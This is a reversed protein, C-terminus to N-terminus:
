DDERARGFERKAIHILNNVLMWLICLGSLIYIAPLTLWYTSFALVKAENIKGPSYFVSITEGVNYRRLGWCGEPPVTVYKNSSAKDATSDANTIAFDGALKPPPEKRSTANPDSFMAVPYYTKPGLIRTRGHISNSSSYYFNYENFVAGKTVILFQYNILKFLFFIFVILLWGTIVELIRKM